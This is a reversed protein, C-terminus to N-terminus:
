WVIRFMIGDRDSIDEVGYGLSNLADISEVPLHKYWLVHSKGNTAQEKIIAEIEILPSQNANRTIQAAEEAKIM